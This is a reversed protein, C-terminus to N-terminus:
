GSGSKRAKRVNRSRRETIEALHMEELASAIRGHNGTLGAFFGLYQKASMKEYLAGSDEVYGAEEGVCQLIAQEDSQRGEFHILKGSDIMDAMISEEVRIKETRDTTGANKEPKSPKCKEEGYQMEENKRAIKM